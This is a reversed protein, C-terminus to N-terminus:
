SAEAAAEQEAPPEAPPADSAAAPAPADGAVEPGWREILENQQAELKRLRRSSTAEFYSTMLAPMLLYVTWVLGGGGVALTWYWGDALVEGARAFSQGQAWLAALAPLAGTLNLMATAMTLRKGDSRDVMLALLTPLGLFALVMCTPLLLGLFPLLLALLGAKLGRRGTAAKARAGKAPAPPAAPRAPKRAVLAQKSM